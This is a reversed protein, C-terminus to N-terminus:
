ITTMKKIKDVGIKTLIVQVFDCRPGSNRSRSYLHCGLMPVALDNWSAMVSGAGSITLFM